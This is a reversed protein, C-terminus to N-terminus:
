IKTQTSRTIIPRESNQHINLYALLYESANFGYVVNQFRFSKPIELKKVFKKAKLDLFLITKNSILGLNKGYPDFGFIITDPLTEIEWLKEKLELSWIEIKGKLKSNSIESSSQIYLALYKEKPDVFVQTAIGELSESFFKKSKIKFFYLKDGAAVLLDNKVALAVDLLFIKEIIFELDGKIANWFKIKTNCASILIENKPLFRLFRIDTLHGTLNNCNTKLM